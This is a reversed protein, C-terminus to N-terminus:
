ARRQTAGRPSVHCFSLLRQWQAASFDRAGGARLAARSTDGRSAYRANRRSAPHPQVPKSATGDYTARCGATSSRLKATRCRQACKTAMALGQSVRWSTGRPQGPLARRLARRQTADSRRSVRKQEGSVFRFSVRLLAKRGFELAVGARLLPQLRLQAGRM